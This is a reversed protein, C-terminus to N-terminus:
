KLVFSDLSQFGEAVLRSLRKREAFSVLVPVDAVQLVGEFLVVLVEGVEVAHALGGEQRACIDDFVFRVIKFAWAPVLEARVAVLSPLHAEHQLLDHPLRAPLWSEDGVHHDVEYFLVPVALVAHELDLGSVKIGEQGLIKRWRLVRECHVVLKDKAGLWQVRSECLRRGRLVQQLAVVFLAHGQLQQAWTLVASSQYFITLIQRTEMVFYELTVAFLFVFLGVKQAFLVRSKQWIMLSELM